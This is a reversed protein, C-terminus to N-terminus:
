VVPRVCNMSRRACSHGPWGACSSRKRRRPPGEHRSRQQSSGEYHYGVECGAATLERMLSLDWTSRRFFYSGVVGLGREIEWMRRARPVNSDIDHRLLLIREPREHIPLALSEAFASLTMTEYGRDLGFRLLSHLEDLREPQVYDFYLRQAIPAAIGRVRKLWVSM